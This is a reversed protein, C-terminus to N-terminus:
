ASKDFVIEKIELVDFGFELAQKMCHHYLEERKWFKYPQKM